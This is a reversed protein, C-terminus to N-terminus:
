TGPIQADASSLEEIVIFSGSCMSRRHQMALKMIPQLAENTSGSGHLVIAVLAKCRRPYSTQGSRREHHLSLRPTLHWQGM